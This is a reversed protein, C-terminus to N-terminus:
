GNPVDAAKLEAVIDDLELQDFMAHREETYNGSGNSFQGLFRLTDSPGMAQTLLHIAEQTITILPRVANSM